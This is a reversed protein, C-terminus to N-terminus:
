MPHGVVNALLIFPLKVPFQLPLELEKVPDSAPETVPAIFLVAIAAPTITSAFTLALAPITSVFSPVIKVLPFTALLAVVAVDALVILEITALSELPLKEALRILVM